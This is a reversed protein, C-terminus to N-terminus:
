KNIAEKLGEMLSAKVKGINFVPLINMMMSVVIDREETNKYGLKRLFKHLSAIKFAKSVEPFSFYMSKKGTDKILGIDFGKKIGDIILLENEDFIARIKNIDGRTLLAEIKSLVKVKSTNIVDVGLITLCTKFNISLTGDSEIYICTEGGKMLYEEVDKRIGGFIEKDFNKDFDEIDEIYIGIGRELVRKADFESSPIPKIPLTPQEKVEEVQKTEKTDKVEVGHAALIGVIAKNLEEKTITIKNAM